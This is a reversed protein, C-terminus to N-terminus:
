VSEILGILAAIIVLVCAWIGGGFLVILIGLVFLTLWHFPFPKAKLGVFLTILVVVLGVIYRVLANLGAIGSWIGYPEPIFGYGFAVDVIGSIVFALGVLAGLITLLKMTQENKYHKTMFYM